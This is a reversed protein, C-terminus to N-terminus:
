TMYYYKVDSGQSVEESQSMAWSEEWEQSELVALREKWHQPRQGPKELMWEVVGPEGLEAELYDRDRQWEIVVSGVPSPTVRSPPGFDTEGQLWRLLDIANDILQPDPPQAGFGNWDDTLTRIALLDDVRAKWKRNAESELFTGLQERRRAKRRSYPKPMSWTPEKVDSEPM